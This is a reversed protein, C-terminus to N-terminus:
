EWLACDRSGNAYSKCEKKACTECKYPERYLNVEVSLQRIEDAIEDISKSEIDSIIKKLGQNVLAKSVNINNKRPKYKRDYENQDLEGYPCCEEMPFDGCRHTKPNRCYYKKSYYSYLESYKCIDCSIYM